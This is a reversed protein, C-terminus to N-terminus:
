WWYDVFCDLLEKANYVLIAFSILAATIGCSFWFFFCRKPTEYYETTETPLNESSFCHALENKLAYEFATWVAEDQKPNTATLVTFGGSVNGTICCQLQSVPLYFVNGQLTSKPDLQKGQRELISILMKQQCGYIVIRKPLFHRAIIYALLFYFLFWFAWVSIGWFSYLRMPILLKGPGFAFLGAIGGCLLMWDQMGNLVTPRERLSLGALVFFYIFLPILAFSM